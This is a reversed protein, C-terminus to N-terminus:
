ARLDSHLSDLGHEASLDGDPFHRNILRVVIEKTGFSLKGHKAFGHPFENHRDLRCVWGSRVEFHKWCDGSRAGNFQPPHAHRLGVQRPDNIVLVVLVLSKDFGYGNSSVTLSLVCRIMSSIAVHTSM